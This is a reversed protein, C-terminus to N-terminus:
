DLGKKLLEDEDGRYDGIPMIDVCRGKVESMPDNRNNGNASDLEINASDVSSVQAIVAFRDGGFRGETGHRTKMVINAQDTSCDLQLRLASRFNVYSDFYIIPHDSQGSVDHLSALFLIPRSDARALVPAVEMTFIRDFSKKDALLSDRWNQVANYRQALSSISNEIQQIHAQREAAKRAQDAKERRQNALVPWLILGIMALLLMPGALHNWVSPQTRNQEPKSPVFPESDVNSLETRKGIKELIAEEFPDHPANVRIFEELMGVLALVVVVGILLWMALLTGRINRLCTIDSFLLLGHNRNM